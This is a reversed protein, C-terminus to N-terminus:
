ALGSFRWAARAGCRNSWWLHCWPMPCQEANEKELGLGERTFPCMSITANGVRTGIVWVDGMYPVM